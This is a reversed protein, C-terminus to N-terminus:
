WFQESLGLTELVFLYLFSKIALTYFVANVAWGTGGTSVM